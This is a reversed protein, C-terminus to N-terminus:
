ASLTQAVERSALETGVRLAASANMIWEISVKDDGLSLAWGNEYSSLQFGGPVAADERVSLVGALGTRLVGEVLKSNAARWIQVGQSAVRQPLRESLTRKISDESVIGRGAAPSALLETFFGLNREAKIHFGALSDVFRAIACSDFGVCLDRFFEPRPGQARESRVVWNGFHANEYVFPASADSDLTTNSSGLAVGLEDARQDLVSRFLGDLAPYWADLGCGFLWRPLAESLQVIRNQLVSLDRPFYDGESLWCIHIPENARVVGHCGVAHHGTSSKQVARIFDGRTPPFSSEKLSFELVASVLRSSVQFTKVREFPAKSPFAHVPLQLSALPNAGVTAAVPISSTSQIRRALTPDIGGVGGESLFVESGM